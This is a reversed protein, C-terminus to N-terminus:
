RPMADSAPTRNGRQNQAANLTPIANAMPKTAHSILTLTQTRPVRQGHHMTTQLTTM